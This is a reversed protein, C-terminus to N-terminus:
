VVRRKRCYVRNAILMLAAGAFTWMVTHIMIWLVPVGFLDCVHYREFYRYPKALALPGSLWETGPPFYFLLLCGGLILSGAAYATVGNKSFASVTTLITSLVIATFSQCALSFLAYQWVLMPWPCLALEDLATVPQGAEVMGGKFYVAAVSVTQFAATLGIGVIWGSVYKALLTKEKGEKATHLLLWTRRDHEGAVSVAATLLILLFVFLMSPTNFFIDETYRPIATIEGRPQSYLRLVEENRRIGFVDGDTRAEELFTGASQLVADLKEASAANLRGLTELMFLYEFDSMEGACGPVQRMEESDMFIYGTLVDDGYKEKLADAIGAHEEDTLANFIETQKRNFRTVSRKGGVIEFFTEVPQTPDWERMGQVYDQYEQIGCQLLFSVLVAVCFALLFFKNKVAKILEFYILRGM